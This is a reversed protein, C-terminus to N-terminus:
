SRRQHETKLPLDLPTRKDKRKRDMKQELVRLQTRCLKLKKSKLCKRMNSTGSFAKAETGM